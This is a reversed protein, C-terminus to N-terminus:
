GRTLERMRRNEFSKSNRVSLKQWDELNRLTEFKKEPGVWLVTKKGSDLLRLVNTLTGRSKGDWLMLGVSSEETMRRDKAEYFEFDRRTHPTLVTTVKWNGINNRCQEGACFVEVHDYGRAHLYLQVARDAGNADGILVFLNREM